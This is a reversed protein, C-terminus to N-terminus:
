PGRQLGPGFGLVARLALECRRCVLLGFAQTALTGGRECSMEVDGAPEADVSSCALERCQTVVDELVTELRPTLELPDLLRDFVCALEVHLDRGRAFLVLDRLQQARSEAGVPELLP